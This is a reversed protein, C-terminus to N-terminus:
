ELQAQPQVVVVTDSQTASGPRKAAAQAVDHELIDHLASLVAYQMMATQYCERMLYEARGRTMQNALASQSISAIEASLRQSIFGMEDEYKKVVDAPGLPIEPEFALLKAGNGSPSSASALIHQLDPPDMGDSGTGARRGQATAIPPMVALLFVIVIIAEGKM